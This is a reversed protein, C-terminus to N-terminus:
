GIHALVICKWVSSYTSCYLSEGKQLNGGCQERCRWSGLTAVEQIWLVKKIM